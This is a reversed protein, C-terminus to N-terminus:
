LLMRYLDKLILGLLTGLFTLLIFEGMSYVPCRWFWNLARLITNM